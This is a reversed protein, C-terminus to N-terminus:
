TWVAGTNSSLLSILQVWLAGLYAGLDYGNHRSMRVEAVPGTPSSIWSYLLREQARHQHVITVPTAKTPQVIERQWLSHSSCHIPRDIIVSFVYCRRVKCGMVKGMLEQSQTTKTHDWVAWMASVPFCRHDHICSSPTSSFVNSVTSCSPTSIETLERFYRDAWCNNFDLCHLVEQTYGDYTQPVSLVNELISNM